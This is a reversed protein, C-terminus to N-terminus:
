VAGVPQEAVWTTVTDAVTGAIAPDSVIHSPPAVVNDSTAAPPVQVLLLPLAVIAKDVDPTTVPETAPVDVM